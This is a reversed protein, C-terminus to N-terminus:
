SLLNRRSDRNTNRRMLSLLAKGSRRNEDQRRAYSDEMLQYSVALSDGMVAILFPWGLKIILAWAHKEPLAGSSRWQRITRTSVIVGMDQMDAQQDTASPWTDQQYQKWRRCLESVSTLKRKEAIQNRNMVLEM